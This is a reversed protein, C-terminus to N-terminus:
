EVDLLGDIMYAAGDEYIHPFFDTVNVTKTKGSITIGAATSKYTLNCPEYSGDSKIKYTV